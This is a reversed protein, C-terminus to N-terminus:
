KVGFLLFLFIIFVKANKMTQLVCRNQRVGRAIEMAGNQVKEKLVLKVLALKIIGVALLQQQSFYVNHCNM